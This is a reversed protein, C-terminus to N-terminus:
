PKNGVVIQTLGEALTPDEGAPLPIGASEFAHQLAAAHPPATSASKVRMFIGVPNRPGFAGQLLDSVPWGSEKLVGDIQAAFAFGEGDGLVCLVQVSGKPAQRLASILHKRQEASVARPTVKQRLELLSREAIAAREQQQALEVEVRQQAVKTEAIRADADRRVLDQYRNTARSLVVTLVTAGALVLVYLVFWMLQAKAAAEIPSPNSTQLTSMANVMRTALTIPEANTAM